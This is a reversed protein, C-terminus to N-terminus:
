VEESKIFRPETPGESKLTFSSKCNAMPDKCKMYKDMELNWAGFIKQCLFLASGDEM